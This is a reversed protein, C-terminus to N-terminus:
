RAATTRPVLFGAAELLRRAEESGLFDVFAAADPGAGALAVAVYENVPLGAPLPLARLAGGDPARGRRTDTEYVFAGDAEGSEVRSLVVRVSPDETVVNARLGAAVGRDLLALADRTLAGVPVAPAGAALRRGPEALEDVSTAPSGEPVVLALTNQAFTRWREAGRAAGAREAHTRDASLLVDAPAGEEVQSALLQSGGFVLRVSVGPREAEFREVLRPLAEDLSSAAFVRLTRGDEGGCAALVAAAALVALRRVLRPPRRPASRPLQM